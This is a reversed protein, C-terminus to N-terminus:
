SSSLPFVFARGPGGDGGKGGVSAGNTIRPGGTGGLVNTGWLATAPKSNYGLIIMGGGGAGGSGNTNGGAAAGGTSGNGGKARYVGNGRMVSGFVVLIGGGAGGTAANGNYAVSGGGSGGGWFSAGSNGVTPFSVGRMLESLQPKGYEPALATLAGGNGGTGPGGGCSGGGAGGMFFGLGNSGDGGTGGVIAGTGGPAPTTVTTFPMIGGPGGNTGTGGLPAQAGNGPASMLRSTNSTGGCVAGPTGGGGAPSGSIGDGGSCDVVGDNELINQVFVRFRLMQVTVGSVVTMNMANIDLPLQYVGAVPSVGLVPNVGDFLLDGDTGSGFLGGQSNQFAAAFQAWGIADPINTIAQRVKQFVTAGLGSTRVYMTGIAAVINSEPAVTGQLVDLPNLNSSAM